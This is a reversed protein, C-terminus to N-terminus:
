HDQEPTNCHIKKIYVSQKTINLTAVSINQSIEAMESQKRKIKKKGKRDEMPNM